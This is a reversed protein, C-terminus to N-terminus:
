MLSRNRILDSAKEGVMICAANTNGGPVTPMVSADAVRLGEVGRVRLQADVVSDAGAGMSCTGVPHQATTATARIFADLESDSDVAAGPSIEEGTLDGQPATRYIRRAERIGSRMDAFDATDAFINLTIRPADAPNASRLKVWGRSRPHLQVVGVAFVHAKRECFGPFWLNADMRVPNCMLQINPQTLDPLTRIVANCSNIQTAFPGAGFLAWHAAHRLARDLRLENLFTVPKTAAFEVMTYPHESLNRGVGPLDVVATLGSERLHDAPGIGSLMLLQPSNYAGGCLIVEADAYSRRLEARQWYEVGVARMKEILVRTALAHSHVTLNSRHLSPYLYARSSSARRGQPDVTLEGRAFGEENPGHLDASVPYGAAQGAAMLPEHLLYATDIPAVHIPGGGGHFPGEGRWSTEMRKFYPLVDKYGWGDCGMSRWGDFDHSHGRMYFMGNITSSGGWVRGRPVPVCRRNLNPEPETLYGWNM